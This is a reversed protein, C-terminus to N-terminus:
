LALLGLGFFLQVCALLLAALGLLPHITRAWPSAPLRRSVLAGASLLCGVAIGIRLHASSALELDPRLWWTSVLGLMLNAVVLWYAVPALRAHQPRLSSQGRERSRLGISAVYALLGLTVLAFTPHVFSLVRDIGTPL